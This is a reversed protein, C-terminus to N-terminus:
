VEKQLGREVTLSLDSCPVFELNKPCDSMSVRLLTSAAHSIFLSSRMLLKFVQEVPRQAPFTPVPAARREAQFATLLIGTSTERTKGTVSNGSWTWNSCSGKGCLIYIDTASSHWLDAFANCDASTNVSRAVSGTVSKVTLGTIPM